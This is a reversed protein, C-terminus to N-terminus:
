QMVADWVAARLTGAADDADYDWYMMGPMGLSLIKKAKLGISKPNDYGAWMKGDKTISPVM